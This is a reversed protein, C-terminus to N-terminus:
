WAFRLSFRHTNGLDNAFPTFGYDINAFNYTIGIGGCINREDYGAQYGGRIALVSNIKCEAGMLFNDDYDSATEYDMSLLLFDRKNLYSSVDYMIGMRLSTPLSLRENKMESMSGINKLVAGAKFLNEIICYKAGVDFGWGSSSEVYIKEYIYKMTIGIDLREDVKQAYSFGFYFDHAGFTGIPESENRYTRAEIKGMNAYYLSFGFAYKNKGIAYSIFESNVDFLWRNHATIIEYRETELLGAPNWFTALAGSSVATFAEGMGVPRGGIGVRLTALGRSEAAYTVDLLYIFISLILFTLTYIILIRKRM